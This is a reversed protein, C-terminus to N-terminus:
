RSICHPSCRPSAPRAFEVPAISIELWYQVLGRFAIEETIAPLVCFIVIAVPLPIGQAPNPVSNPMFHRVTSHFAFNILLLPVLLGLGAWAEWKLFGSTKLQAALPRWHIFTFIATTVFIAITSILYAALPPQDPAPGLPNVIIASLIASGLVVAAYTWFVTWTHPALREVRRSDTLPVPRAPGLLSMPSKYPTGCRVCFYYFADLPANCYSCFISSVAASAYNRQVPHPGALDLIPAPASAPPISTPDQSM